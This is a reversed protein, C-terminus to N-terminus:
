VMKAVSNPRERTEKEDRSIVSLIAFGRIDPDDFWRFRAFVYENLRKWDYFVSTLEDDGGYCYPAYFRNGVFSAYIHTGNSTDIWNGEFIDLDHEFNDDQTESEAPTPPSWAKM